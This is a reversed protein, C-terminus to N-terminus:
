NESISALIRMTRMPPRWQTRDSCLGVGCELTMLASCLRLIINRLGRTTSKTALWDSLAITSLDVIDRGACHYAAYNDTEKSNGSGVSNRLLVASRENMEDLLTDAFNAVTQGSM